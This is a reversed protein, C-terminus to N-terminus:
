HRSTLYFICAYWFPATTLICSFILGARFMKEGRKRALTPSANRTALEVIWGMTYCVNAMIGYATVGLFLNIPEEADEGPPIVNGMLFEFGIMSAIGIVLLLFNYLLRRWEWWCVIQLSSLVVEKEEHM